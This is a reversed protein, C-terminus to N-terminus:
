DSTRPSVAGPHRGTSERERPAAPALWEPYGGGDNGRLRPTFRLPSMGGRVRGDEPGGHDRGPHRSRRHHRAHAVRRRRRDEGHHRAPDQRLPDKPLRKVVLANKFAAVPGIQDRVRQVEEAVIAEHGRECGANLVLFGLPLQGKLGDAVGIVACEPSM